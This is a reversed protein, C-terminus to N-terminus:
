RAPDAHASRDEQSGRHLRDRFIGQHLRLRGQARGAHRPGSRTACARRYRPVPATPATSRRRSTGSSSSRDAVVGARIGDFAEMPLGGPNAATKLMLPPVAGILVAKAVRKTGHRGPVAVRGESRGDSRRADGAPRPPLEGADRGCCPVFHGGPPEESRQPQSRLSPRGCCGPGARARRRMIVCGVTRTFINTM